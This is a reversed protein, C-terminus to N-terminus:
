PRSCQSRIPETQVTYFNRPEISDYGMESLARLMHIFPKEGGTDAGEFGDSNCGIEWAMKM